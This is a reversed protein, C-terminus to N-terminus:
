LLEIDVREGAAIDGDGARSARSRTPASCRPSCTRSSRRRRARSGATTARSSGCACWRTASRTAGSRSASGRSAARPHRPRRGPARARAPRAFLHFTVMASVPNGPLGFVLTGDRAASGRRSAPSSRARGLLAGDVGLEALAPKVHDHPGVSVGGSVCVVDAADLARALTTADHREFDDRVSSACDVVSARRRARGARRAGYANSNRIQGPGLTPARSSWSTAPRSRGRGAPRRACAVAAQRAVRAGRARGARARHRGRDRTEGARVDEGARRVNAGARAQPCSSRATASRPRRSRSSPSAHGGARRRRDLDPVRTGPALPASSPRARARSATSESRRRGRREAGRLRGDGLRRVAAPGRGRGRRSPSCAASRPALAVDEAPLPRVEALM